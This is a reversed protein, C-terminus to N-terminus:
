QEQQQHASAASHPRQDRLRFSDPFVIAFLCLLVVLTPVVTLIFSLKEFKMHMFYAVILAAKIISLGMVIILMLTLDLQIYALFVEIGTLALLVGWVIVNERNSGGHGHALAHEGEEAAPESAFPNTIWGKNYAWILPNIAFLLALLLFVLVVFLDDVGGKFQYSAVTWGALALSGLALLALAGNLILQEKEKSLEM